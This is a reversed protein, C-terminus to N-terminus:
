CSFIIMLLIDYNKNVSLKKWAEIGGELNFLNNFSFKEELRQIALQSRIGKKCYFVVKKNTAIRDIQQTIESLPILEGGINYDKHEFPERVDILQIDEGAHLYAHLEKVSVSFM